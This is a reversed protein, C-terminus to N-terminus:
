RNQLEEWKKLELASNWVTWFPTQQIPSPYCKHGSSELFRCFQMLVTRPLLSPPPPVQFAAGEGVLPSDLLPQVLSELHDIEILTWSPDGLAAASLVSLGHELRQKV